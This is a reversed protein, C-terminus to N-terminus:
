RRKTLFDQAWERANAMLEERHEELYDDALIALDRARKGDELHPALSRVLLPFKYFGQTHAYHKAPIPQLSPCGM